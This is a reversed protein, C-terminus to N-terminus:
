PWRGSPTPSDKPSEVSRVTGRPFGLAFHWRGDLTKRPQDTPPRQAFLGFHAVEFSRVPSFCPFINGTRAWHQNLTIATHNKRLRLGFLANAVDSWYRRLAEHSPEFGLGNTGGNSSSFDRGWSARGNICRRPRDLFMPDQPASFGQDLGSERVVRCNHPRRALKSPQVISDQGSPPM